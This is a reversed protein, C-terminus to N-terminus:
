FILTCSIEGDFFQETPDFSPIQYINSKLTEIAKFHIEAFVDLSKARQTSGPGVDRITLGQRKYWLVGRRGDEVIHWGSRVEPFALNNMM